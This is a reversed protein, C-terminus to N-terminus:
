HSPPQPLAPTRRGAAVNRAREVMPTTSRRRWRILWSLAYLLILGGLGIIVFTIWNRLSIGFILMEEGPPNQATYYEPDLPVLPQSAPPEISSACLTQAPPCHVYGVYGHAQLVAQSGDCAQWRGDPTRIEVYRGNPGDICRHEYCSATTGLTAEYNELFLSTEFCASNAGFSGGTCDEKGCRQLVFPSSRNCHQQPSVFPCGDMLPDNYCSGIASYDFTCKPQALNRCQEMNEDPCTDLPFDCGKGRGWKFEGAAGFNVEYWGSDQLVALTFLSLVDEIGAGQSGTMYESVFLRKEWHSLATGDGGDNELEAGALTSCNFHTRSVDRVTPTVLRSITNGRESFKQVTNSAIKYSGDKLLPPYGYIDYSQCGKADPCRETKPKGTSDRFFAFSSTSMGLIHTLEHLALMVNEQSPEGKINDKVQNTCFHMYGVVPRDRQDRQCANAFALAGSGRCVKNTSDGTVYVLIDSNSVGSGGPLERTSGDRNRLTLSGLHDSPIATMTGCSEQRASAEACEGSYAGSSWYAVCQRAVHLNGQLPYVKLADQIIEKTKSLLREVYSFQVSNLTQEIAATDFVIRIPATKEADNDSRRGSVGGSKYKQHARVSKGHDELKDHVCERHCLASVMFILLLACRVLSFAIGGKM